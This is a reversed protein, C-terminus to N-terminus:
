LILPNVKSIQYSCIDAITLKSFFEITPTADIKISINSKAQKIKEFVNEINSKMDLLDKKSSFSYTVSNIRVIEEIFERFTTLRHVSFVEDLLVEFKTDKSVNSIPNEEDEEFFIKFHIFLQDIALDNGKDEDIIMKCGNYDKEYM